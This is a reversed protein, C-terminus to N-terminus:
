RAPVARFPSCSCRAASRRTSRRTRTYGGVAGLGETSKELGAAMGIGAWGGIGSYVGVYQKGQYQYTFVNGIIGSPTKFRWLEKRTRSARRGQPLRRAHRLVRHRWRHRARRVVGLLKEPKSWVIKGTARMGRSSTAWRATRTRVRICRCRRAWLPSVRCTTSTSRSTTWASTIPRCTPLARHEPRVGRAAPGELRAGGPSIGKM